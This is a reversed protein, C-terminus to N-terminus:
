LKCSMNQQATSEGVGICEFITLILPVSSNGGGVCVFLEIDGCFLGINGCFAREGVGICEFLGRGV